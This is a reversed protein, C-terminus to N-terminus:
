YFKLMQDLAQSLKWRVEKNLTDSSMQRIKPLSVPIGVKPLSCGFSELSNVLMDLTTEPDEILDEYKITFKRQEPILAWSKDIARRISLIQSAIQVEPTQLCLSEYNQPRISWWEKTSGFRNQRVNWFSEAVDLTNRQLDIFFINSINQLPLVFYSGLICKFVVPKDFINIISDLEKQLKDIDVNLLELASPEHVDKCIGLHRTWFYGFEHPEEILATAGHTSQYDRLNHLRNGILMKQLFAGVAPTEHFRAMLNSPYAIDLRSSIMQMLLTSGSRPTGLIILVPHASTKRNELQRQLPLLSNNILELLAEEKDNKLFQPLRKKADFSSRQIYNNSSNNSM